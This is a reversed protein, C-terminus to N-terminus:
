AAGSVRRRATKSPAGDHRYQIFKHVLLHSPVPDLSEYQKM